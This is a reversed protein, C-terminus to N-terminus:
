DGCHHKTNNKDAVVKFRIRPRGKSLTGSLRLRFLARSLHYPINQQLNTPRTARKQDDWWGTQSGLPVGFHTHYTRMVRGSCAWWTSSDPGYRKLGRPNARAAVTLTMNIKARSMIAPIHVDAPTDCVASLAEFTQSGKKSRWCYIMRMSRAWCPMTQQWVPGTAPSNRFRTVCCLWYSFLPM